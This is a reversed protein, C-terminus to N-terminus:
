IIISIYIVIVDQMSINKYVTTCKRLPLVISKAIGTEM